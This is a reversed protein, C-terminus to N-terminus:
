GLRWITAGGSALPGAGVVVARDGVVVARSRRGVLEVDDASWAVGDTSTYQVTQQGDRTLVDVLAVLRGAVALVTQADQHVGPVLEGLTFQEWPGGGRSRWGMPQSEGSLSPPNSGTGVRSDESHSSGVVVVLDGLAAASSVWSSITVEAGPLTARQWARGDTSTWLAARGFEQGLAYFRGGDHEVRNVRVGRGVDDVTASLWREGDDSYWARLPSREGTAAVATRPSAALVLGVDASWRAVWRDDDDLDWVQRHTGDSSALLPRGALAAVDTVFSGAPLAPVSAAPTWRRGDPSELVFSRYEGYAEEYGVAVLGDAVAAVGVLQSSPAPRRITLPDAPPDAITHVLTWDPLPPLAATPDPRRGLVYGVAGGGAAVLTGAAAATLWRRRSLVPAASPEVTLEELPTAPALQDLYRDYSGLQRQLEIM